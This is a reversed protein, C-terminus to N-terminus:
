AARRRAIQAEAAGFVALVATVVALLIIGGDGVQLDAKGKFLLWALILLAGVLNAVAAAGAVHADTCARDLWGM